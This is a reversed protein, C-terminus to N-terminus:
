QQKALRHALYNMHPKVKKLINRTQNCRGPKIRKEMDGMYNSPIKVIYHTTELLLQIGKLCRTLACVDKKFLWDRLLIM